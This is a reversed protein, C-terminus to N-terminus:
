IGPHLADFGGCTGPAPPDRGPATPLGTATRQGNGPTPRSGRTVVASRWPLDRQDSLARAPIALLARAPIAPSRATGSTLRRGTSDPPTVRRGAARCALTGHTPLREDEGRRSQVPTASTATGRRNSSQSVFVPPCVACSHSAGGHRDGTRTQHERPLLRITTRPSTQDHNCRLTASKM